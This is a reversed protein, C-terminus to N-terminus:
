YRRVCRGKYFDLGNVACRDRVDKQRDQYRQEDRARGEAMDSRQREQQRNTSDDISDRSTCYDGDKDYWRPCEEGNREFSDAFVDSVGLLFLCFFLVALLNQNFM